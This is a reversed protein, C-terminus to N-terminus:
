VTTFCHTSTLHKSQGTTQPTSTTSFLTKSVDPQQGTPLMPRQLTAWGRSHRDCRYSWFSVTTQNPSMTATSYNLLPDSTRWVSLPPWITSALWVTYRQSTACARQSTISYNCRTSSWFWNSKSECIAAGFFFNTNSPPERPRSGQQCCNCCSISNSYNHLTFTNTRSRKSKEYKPIPLNTSEGGFFSHFHQLQEHNHRKFLM